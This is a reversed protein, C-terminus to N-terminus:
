RWFAELEGFRMPGSEERLRWVFSIALVGRSFVACTGLARLIHRADRMM